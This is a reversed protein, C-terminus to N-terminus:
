NNYTEWYSQSNDDDYSNNDDGNVTLKSLNLLKGLHAGEPEMSQAWATFRPLQPHQSDVLTGHHGETNNMSDSINLGSIMM